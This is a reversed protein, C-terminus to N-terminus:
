KNKSWKVSCNVKFASQTFRNMPKIRIQLVFNPFKIEFSSINKKLEVFSYDLQSAIIEKGCLIHNRALNYKTVSGDKTSSVHFCTAQIIEQNGLGILPFLDTLFRDQDISWLRKLSHYLGDIAKYYTSVVKTNMEKNLQGPLEPLGQSRWNEDFRGHFDLGAMEYLSHGMELFTKDINENLNKQESESEKFNSFYKTLFSRAGGSKTNVFSHDKCLKISVPVIDKGSLVLIDAENFREDHSGGASKGVVLINEAILPLVSILEKSLSTALVPLQALLAPENARIWQEYESLQKRIDGGFSSIFTSEIKYHRALLSAVLYEFLNGKFENLLAEKQVLTDIPAYKKQM